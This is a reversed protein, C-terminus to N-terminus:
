LEIFPFRVECFNCHNHFKGCDFSADGRCLGTIYNGGCEEEENTCKLGNMISTTRFFKRLGGGGITM